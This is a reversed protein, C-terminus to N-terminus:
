CFILDGQHVDEVAEDIVTAVKKCCNKKSARHPYASMLYAVGENISHTNVMGLLLETERAPM